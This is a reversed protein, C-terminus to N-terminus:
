RCLRTRCGATGITHDDLEMAGEADEEPDCSAQHQLITNLKPMPGLLFSQSFSPASRTVPPRSESAPQESGEACLLEREHVHPSQSM